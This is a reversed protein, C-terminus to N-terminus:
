VPLFVTNTKYDTDIGKVVYTIIFRALSTGTFAFLYSVEWHDYGLQSEGVATWSNQKENKGVELTSQFRPKYFLSGRANNSDVFYVRLSDNEEDYDYMYKKATSFSDTNLISVASENDEIYFLRGRSWYFHGTRDWISNTSRDTVTREYQWTSEYLSRYAARAVFKGKNSTELISKIGDVVEPDPGEDRYHTVAVVDIDNIPM